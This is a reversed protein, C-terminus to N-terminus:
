GLRRVDLGVAAPIVDFDADRHALTAGTRDAVAAILCDNIRRVTRGTSRVSRYLAAAQHYDVRVELSLLVLGGTLLELDHLARASAAGALLEMVVPETTALVEPERLLDAVQDCAPSGTDRLYEIWGSTDLLLVDTTDGSGGPVCRM